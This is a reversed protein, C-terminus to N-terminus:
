LTRLTMKEHKYLLKKDTNRDTYVSMRLTHREAKLAYFRLSEESFSFILTVKM